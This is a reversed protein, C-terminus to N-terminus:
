AYLKPREIVNITTSGVTEYKKIKFGVRIPQNHQKKEMLENYHRVFANGYYRFLNENNKLSIDVVDVVTNNFTAKKMNLSEITFDLIDSQGISLYQKSKGIDGENVIPEEGYKKRVFELSDQLDSFLAEVYLPEILDYGKQRNYHKKYKFLAYYGKKILSPKILLKGILSNADSEKILINKM